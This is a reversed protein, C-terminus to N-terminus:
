NRGLLMDREAEVKTEYEINRDINSVFSIAWTRVKINENKTLPLLVEKDAELYPVLSGVWSRSNFNASIENIFLTNDGFTAILIIVLPNVFKNENESFFLSLSRGVLLLATENRCWEIVTETSLDDFISKERKKYSKGSGLLDMLRYANPADKKLFQDSIVPWISEGFKEFAKYFATCIYDSRDSYTVNYNSVQNILHLCLSVAFNEDEIELLKEVTNIWHYSDLQGVKTSSEFSVSLVLHKLARRVHEFSVDEKGFEYMSINELAVWAGISNIASLSLCFEIIEESTLHDTVSGYSLNMAAISSLKGKKILCILQDLHNKDFRGTKMADPYYRVLCEDSSITELQLKWDALSKTHLGSLVGMLFQVQVLENKRAFNLTSDLLQHYADSELVLQRAFVWSQKQEQFTFILQLFPIVDDIQNKLKRALDKADEAAVDIYHGNDGKVHERTPNLVTLKILEELNDEDPALLQEWSKLFSMDYVSLGDADYQFIHVLSQQVSPWYKDSLKVIERIFIDLVEYQKYYILGRLNNGFSEKILSVLERRNAITLLVNLLSQWYGFIESWQQPMWEELEEKTGQFEAGVSRTAGHTDFAREVAKVIVRDASDENLALARDLINLRQSFPAATGSLQWSYLQAFQGLSNNSFSENEFQALKFLCWASKDFCNAHFVLMELAWVLNRRTDGSIDGIKADGIRNFVGYLLESTANPNVEVLARFLRSGAKSLLLEAQAFPSKAKCFNEVFDQVNISSDLYKIQNCFSDIMGEPLSNILESQREFLSSEWWEMALNLALPKPTVRAYPGTINILEKQNFRTTVADFDIDSSKAIKTILEKDLNVEDYSGKEMRFYDFLSMVRLVEKQSSTLQSDGNILKEVLDNETFEAKLEGSSRIHQILMDVLLPFGEVFKSIRKIYSENAKPLLQVVLKEIEEVALRELKIHASSQIKEHYFDVTIIKLYHPPNFLREVRNHFNVSCNEIIVLSNVQDSSAQMLKNLVGEEDVSANYILVFDEPFSIENIYEIILRSKGLGSLGTLRVLPKDSNLVSILSQLASKRQEDAVYQMHHLRDIKRWDRYIRSAGNLYKDLKPNSRLFKEIEKVVNDSPSTPKAIGGHNVRPITKTEPYNHSSSSRSVVDDVEACLNLIRLKSDYKEKQWRQNIEVLSDSNSTLAKIHKNRPNIIKGLSALGSGTHPVDLFCIRTINHQKEHLALQQLLKKVVVGGNSHAIFVIEDNSFSECRNELETIFAEAINLHNPAAKWFQYFKHPSVYDLCAIKYQEGFQKEVFDPFKGWADESSSSYGHIFFIYKAM